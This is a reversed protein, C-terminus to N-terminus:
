AFTTSVDCGRGLGDRRCVGGRHDLTRAGAKTADHTRSEPSRHALTGCPPSSESVGSWATSSMTQRRRVPPSGWRKADLFWDARLDADTQVHHVRSGYRACTNVLERTNNSNAGGVVVIVDCQGALDDAAQQRQKTPQCVTDVFRVESHPFRRQILAVLHQVREISQTTQAAIGIRPHAQLQLVDDDDRVIDFSDLDETLGRVEVHGRQGIIVPHYGDRVLASVAAHAVRVLPCTAEVVELGQARTTEVRRASAGHATIMM